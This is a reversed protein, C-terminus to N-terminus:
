RDINAQIWQLAMYGDWLAWNGDEDETSLFGLAQVSEIYMFIFPVKNKGLRSIGQVYKAM